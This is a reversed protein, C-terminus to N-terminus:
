KKVEKLKIRDNKKILNKLVDDFTEGRLKLRNLNNWVEDSIQITRVRQGEIRVKEIFEKKWIMIIEGAKKLIVFDADKQTHRLTPKGRKDTILKADGYYIKGEKKCRFDFSSSKRDSLWEVEDFKEKLIELAEIEFERGIQKPSKRENM